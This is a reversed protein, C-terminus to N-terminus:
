ERRIHAQAADANGIAGNAGYKLARCNYAIPDFTGNEVNEMFAMITDVNGKPFYRAVIFTCNMGWEEGFARGGGIVMEQCSRSCNHSGWARGTTCGKASSEGQDPRHVLPSHFLDQKGALIQAFGKANAVQAMTLNKQIPPSFHMSRLENHAEIM